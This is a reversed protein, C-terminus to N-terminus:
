KNNYNQSPNIVTHPISNNNNNNHPLNPTSSITFATNPRLHFEPTRPPQISHQQQQPLHHASHYNNKNSYHHSSNIIQPGAASYNHSNVHNPNLPNANSYPLNFEGSEEIMGTGPRDDIGVVNEQGVLQVNSEGPKNKMKGMLNEIAGAVKLNSHAMSIFEHLKLEDVAASLSLKYKLEDIEARLSHNEATLEGSKDKLGLIEGQLALFENERIGGTAKLNINEQHLLHNKEEAQQSVQEAEQVRQAAQAVISEQTFIQEKLLNQKSKNEGVEALLRRNEESFEEVKKNLDVLASSWFLRAKRDNEEKELRAKLNEAVEQLRTNLKLNDETLNTIIGEKVRINDEHAVCLQELQRVKNELSLQESQLLKIQGLYNKDQPNNLQFELQLVREAAERHQSDYQATKEAHLQLEKALEEINRNYNEQDLRAQTSNQVLLENLKDIKRNALSLKALLKKLTEEASLRTDILASKHESNSKKTIEIDNALQDRALTLQEIQLTSIQNQKLFDALRNELEKVKNKYDDEMTIYKERLSLIVNDLPADPDTSDPASSGRLGATQGSSGGSKKLLNLELELFYVQQQLNVIYENELNQSEDNAPLTAALTTSNASSSFDDGYMASLDTAGASGRVISRRQSGYNSSGSYNPQKATKAKTLATSNGSIALKQAGGTSTLSFNNANNSASGSQPRKLVASRM